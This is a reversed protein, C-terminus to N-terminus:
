ELWLLEGKGDGSVPFNARATLIDKRGDNNMDIVLAEHYFFGKLPTTVELVKSDADELDM